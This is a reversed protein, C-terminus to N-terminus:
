TLSRSEEERGLSHLFIYVYAKVRIVDVLFISNFDYFRLHGRNYFVVPAYNYM